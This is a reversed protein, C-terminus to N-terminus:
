LSDEDFYREIKKGCVELVEMFFMGFVVLPALPWFVYWFQFEVSTVHYFIKKMTGRMYKWEHREHKYRSRIYAAGFSLVILGLLYFLVYYM